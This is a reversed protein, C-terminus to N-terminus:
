TAKDELQSAINRIQSMTVDIIKERKEEDIHRVTLAVELATFQSRLNHVARTELETVGLSKRAELSQVIQEILDYLEVLCAHDFVASEKLASLINVVPTILNKHM